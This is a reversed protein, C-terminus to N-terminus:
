EAYTWDDNTPVGYSKSLENIYKDDQLELLDFAARLKLAAELILYTSNWRTQVDLSVLGKYNIGEWKICAKFSESRMPSSKVYKVANFIRTISDDIEKLGDKVDNSTANDVTVTFVQHLKWADLCGEIARGLVDGSHGEVQCFNLIRKQLKWDNDIFYAALSMYTLKQSLTMWTDTTLCVKQCHYSLYSQLKMKEIDYLSLIDRALITHLPIKFKPQLSHFLRRFVNREVFQFAIEETVFMKTLISRSVAQDFKTVSPSSIPGSTGGEISQRKSQENNSDFCRKWHKRM